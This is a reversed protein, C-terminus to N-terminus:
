GLGYGGQGPFSDRLGAGDEAEMIPGKGTRDLASFVGVSRLRVWSSVKVNPATKRM